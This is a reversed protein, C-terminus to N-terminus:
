IVKTVLKDDDTTYYTETETELVYGDKAYKKRVKSNLNSGNWNYTEDEALDAYTGDGNDTEFWERRLINGFRGNSHTEVLFNPRFKRTAAPSWVAYAADLDDEEQQTLDDGDVDIHLDPGDARSCWTRGPLASIVGSLFSPSGISPDAILGDIDTKRSYSKTPM